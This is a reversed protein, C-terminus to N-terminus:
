LLSYQGDESGGRTRGASAHMAAEFSEPSEIANQWSGDRQLAVFLAVARAQCNISRSPNFEIDTFADHELIQPWVAPCTLLGRLYLWDYFLTKPELPWRRGEYSFVVLEGSARVRPDLKADRATREYLDTYPGGGTFVKSGQFLSEVSAHGSVTQVQLQFASLGRGLVSESRSSVELPRRIGLQEIAADHLSRVSKRKQSPALGAHWLFDVPAVRVFGDASPVPLFIPRKAM